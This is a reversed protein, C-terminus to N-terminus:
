PERKWHSFARALAHISILLFFVTGQLARSVAEIDSYFEFRQVANMVDLQPALGTSHLLTRRVLWGAVCSVIWCGILSARLGFFRPELRDM